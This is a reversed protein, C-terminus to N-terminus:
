RPDTPHNLMAELQAAFEPGSLTTYDGICHDVDACKETCGCRGARGAPTPHCWLCWLGAGPRTERAARGADIEKRADEIVKAAHHWQERAAHILWAVAGVGLVAVILRVAWTM